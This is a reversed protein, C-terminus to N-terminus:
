PGPAAPRERKSRFLGKVKRWLEGLDNFEERYALGVGQTTTAQDAQNLNRDNAQSFAKLRLKNDDTLRYEAQFDGVLNNNTQGTTSGYQVGVNTSILLRENFLETSVALELEDQTVNDGPRYNFGLDVDNSLRSLWNSVQNSLMESGTTSAVNGGTSSQGGFRDVPLFKNLVILSFVQRNMEDPESLLTNVQTRIGEDVTPLRVNFGIEPDNLRERLKMIVDVPVRRTYAESREAPLIDYLSARVKYVADLALQADYPDGFWSISGGPEVDFRKSLVNRLTFLYSGDVIELDGQMGLDGAPTVSLEVHGEATGSLIDGVTPDFILEFRADRTVDVNLDLRIGTLDVEREVTDLLADGSRFTVFDVASVETSAGLPLAILTGKGPKGDFAVALNSEYGSVSVSGTAYATGYFPEGKTGDTHLVLMDQMDLAVDYNWDAFHDHIITGVAIAKNGEEDELEVLDITFMDPMINVEHTFSYATNLYDIRLGARDLFAKGEIRPRLLSGGVHVGGTVKGHIDSIDPPL